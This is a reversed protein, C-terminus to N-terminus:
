LFRGRDMALLYMNAGIVTYLVGPLSFIECTNVPNPNTSFVMKERSLFFVIGSLVFGAVEM